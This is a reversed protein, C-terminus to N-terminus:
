FAGGGAGGGAAAGGGSFGGGFRGGSSSQPPYMSTHWAIWYPYFGTYPGQGDRHFWAPSYTTGAAQLLRSIASRKGLAVAYPLVADVDHQAEAPTAGGNLLPTLYSQWTAAIREGEASTNSVAAGLAWAAIAAALFITAGILAWGEQAVIAVIVSLLTAVFGVAAAVYLPRHRRSVDRDYWGRNLLDHKLLDRGYSWGTAVQPLEDALVFGEDDAHAQLSRWVQAEYDSLDPAKRLLRIRVRGPSAPEMELLGRRAFDLVTAEMQAGTVHGRVLAGVIAPALQDTPAGTGVMTIPQSAPARRNRRYLFVVILAFLVSLLSLPLRGLNQAFIQAAGPQPPGHLLDYAVDDLGAAIGGATDESKLLPLMDDSYIRDLESQPLRSDLWHKGAYLAVEGHRPNTPLLNLLMVFGDKAGPRSELDWRQMLDAADQATQDFTADKLQLYVVTPAGAQEVAAAHTELSAIEDPSLINACDYIHRGPVLQQSCASPQIAAAYAPTPALVGVGLVVVFVLLVPLSAARSLRSTAQRM